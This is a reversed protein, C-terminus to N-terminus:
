RVRWLTVYEVGIEDRSATALMGNGVAFTNARGQIVLEGLYKGGPGFLDFVTESGEARLTHVWLRGQDDFRMARFHRHYEDVTHRPLEADPLRSRVHGELREKVSREAEIESETKRKRPTQRVVEDALTGDEEYLRIRYEECCSGLAFGGGPRAALVPRRVVRPDTMTIMDSLDVLVQRPASDGHALRLVSQPRGRMRSSIIYTVRIDPRSDLVPFEGLAVRRTDLYSGVTDFYTFRGQGYDFVQLEGSQRVAMHIPFRFEGPGDGVGGFSRVPRGSQDFIRVHPASGDLLYVRSAHIELGRITTLLAPGACDVCGIRVIQEVHVPAAQGIAIAPLALLVSPIAFRSAQM